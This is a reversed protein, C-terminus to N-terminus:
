GPRHSPRHSPRHVPDTIESARNQGGGRILSLYDEAFPFEQWLGNAEHRLRPEPAGEQRCAEFIREIGRGWVEIEGARFFVNAIEPNFPHSVHPGLLTELTWGDPLVAPNWLSLRDDYVRIQIPVPVAYDRHVLANLVAERLAARPVPFREVRVIDEYRVAAKLYKTLLLDLTNQVQSFCIAM